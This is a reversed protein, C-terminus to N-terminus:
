YYYLCSMDMAGHAAAEATEKRVQERTKPASVPAGDSVWTCGFPRGMADRQAGDQACAALACAACLLAGIAFLRNISTM